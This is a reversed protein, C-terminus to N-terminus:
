VRKSWKEQEGREDRRGEGENDGKGQIHKPKLDARLVCRRYCNLPPFPSQDLCRCKGCVCVCVCVCVSKCVCVCTDMYVCLTLADVSLPCVCTRAYVCVTDICGYNFSVCACVCMYECPM